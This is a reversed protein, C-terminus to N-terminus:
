LRGNTKIFTEALVEKADAEQFIEENASCSLIARREKSDFAKFIFLFPQKDYSFERNGNSWEGGKEFVIKQVARNQIPTVRMKINTKMQGRRSKSSNKIHRNKLSNVCFFSSKSIQTFVKFDM